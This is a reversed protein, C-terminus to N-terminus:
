RHAPNHSLKFPTLVNGNPPHIIQSNQFKGGQTANAEVSARPPDQVEIGEVNRQTHAPPHIKTCHSCASAPSVLQDTTDAIHNGEESEYDISPKYFNNWAMLKATRQM